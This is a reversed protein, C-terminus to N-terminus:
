VKLPSFNLDKIFNVTFAPHYSQNTEKVHITKSYITVPEVRVFKYGACTLGEFIQRIDVENRFKVIQKLLLNGLSPIDSKVFKIEKREHALSTIIFDLPRYQNIKHYLHRGFVTDDYRSQVDVREDRHDDSLIWPHQIYFKSRQIRDFGLTKYSVFSHVECSFLEMDKEFQNDTPESFAYVLCPDENMKYEPNFCVYKSGYLDDTCQEGTHLIRKTKFNLEGGFKLWAYCFKADPNLLAAFFSPVGGYPPLRRPSGACLKVIM